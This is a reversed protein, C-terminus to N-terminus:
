RSVVPICDADGAVFAACFRRADSIDEFGHARLRYFTRGGSSAKQIVRDKEEMYDGFRAELRAWESRAVEASDYAGLQVLRTGAALTDPDIEAVQPEAPATEPQALATSVLGGPRNRPRLSRAVTGESDLVGTVPAEETELPTPTAVAPASEPRPADPDFLPEIDSAIQDALAQIPDDAATEAETTEEAEPAPAPADEAPGMDPAAESLQLTEADRRDPAAAPRPALEAQPVDEESLDPPRPALTLRDAPDAAVGTGAVDNVSLGQHDAAEGGPNQPAVRMPGSTAEVVPIGTVDRVLLRYGWVAVGAILALSVVAGAWNATSALNGKSESGAVPGAQDYTAM